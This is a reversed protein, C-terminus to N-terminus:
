KRKSEQEAERNGPYFLNEEENKACIIVSIGADSTSVEKKKSRPLRVFVLLIYGMQILFALCFVSLIIWHLLNTGAILERLEM